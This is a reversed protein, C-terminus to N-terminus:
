INPNVYKKIVEMGREEGEEIAVEVAKKALALLDASQKRLAFSQQIQHSIKTQIEKPLIPILVKKIEDPRWHQIISDGTDREAKIHTQKNNSDRLIEILKM